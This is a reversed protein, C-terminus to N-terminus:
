PFTGSGSRSACRMAPPMTVPRLRPRAYPCACKGVNVGLVRPRRRSAGRGYRRGHLKPGLVSPLDRVRAHQERVLENLNPDEGFSAHDADHAACDSRLAQAVDVLGPTADLACERGDNAALMAQEDIHSLRAAAVIGLELGGDSAITGARDLAESTHRHHHAADGTLHLNLPVHVFVLQAADVDEVVNM